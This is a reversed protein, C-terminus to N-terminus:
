TTTRKGHEYAELLEDGQIDSEDTASVYLANVEVRAYLKAWRRATRLADVKRTSTERACPEGNSADAYAFVEYTRKTKTFM